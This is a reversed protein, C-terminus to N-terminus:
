RGTLGTALVDIADVMASTHVSLIWPLSVGMMIMGMASTVTVGLSFFVQMRPALKALLAIFLHLLWLIGIVPGALQIGLTICGGVAAIAAPAAGVLIPAEGPPYRQFSAAVIELCRNLMGFQLFVLGALWSALTGVATGHSKTLPDSLTALALAMQGAMIDAALNMVAFATKVGLGFSFGLLVERLFALVLLSSEPAFDAPTLNASVLASLVMALLMTAWRPVGMVSLLPLMLFLAGVRGLVLVFTVAWASV